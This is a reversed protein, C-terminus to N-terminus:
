STLYFFSKITQVCHEASAVSGIQNGWQEKPVHKEETNCKKGSYTFKETEEVESSM